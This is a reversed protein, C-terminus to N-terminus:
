HTAVLNSVAPLLAQSPCRVQRTIHRLLGERKLQTVLEHLSLVGKKTNCRKCALAWNGLEWMSAPRRSKPTIHEIECGHLPISELCGDAENWGMCGTYGARGIYCYGRFSAYVSWVEIDHPHNSSFRWVKLPKSPTLALM